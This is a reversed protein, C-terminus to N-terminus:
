RRSAKKPRKSATKLGRNLLPEFLPETSQFQGLVGAMWYAALPFVHLILRNGSHGWTLDQPSTFLTYLVIRFFFFSLIAYLLFEQKESFRSNFVANRVFAFILTAAFIYWTGDWFGRSKFMLLYLHYTTSIFDDKYLAFLALLCAALTLATTKYFGAYGIVYKGCFFVAAALVFCIFIWANGGHSTTIFGSAFLSSIDLQLLIGWFFWTYAIAAYLIFGAALPPQYEKKLLFGFPLVSFILMEKRILCSAALFACAFFFRFNQRRSIYKELCLVGATFYAATMLNSLLWFSHLLVHRSSIYLVVTLIVSLVATYLTKGTEDLIEGVLLCLTFIGTASSFTYFVDIGSLYAINYVAEFFPLRMNFIYYYARSRGDEYAGYTHFVRSLGEHALSDTSYHVFNMTQALWAFCIVGAAFVCAGFVVDAKLASFPKHSMKYLFVASVLSVASVLPLFAKLGFIVLGVSSLGCVMWGTLWSLAAFSIRNIHGRYPALVFVGLLFVAANLAIQAFINM